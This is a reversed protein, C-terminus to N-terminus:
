LLYLPIYQAKSEVINTQCSRTRMHDVVRRQPIGLCSIHFFHAPGRARNERWLAYDYDGKDDQKITDEEEAAAM